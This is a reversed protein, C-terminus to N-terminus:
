RSRRKARAPAGWRHAINERGMERLRRPSKSLGMRHGKFVVSSVKRGLHDAIEANSWSRYHAKLFKVEAATWRPRVSRRTTTTKV